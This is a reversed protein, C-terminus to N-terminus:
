SMEISTPHLKKNKVEAFIWIIFPLIVQFPFAYFKYTKFVWEMMEMINSYLIISLAIMLLAIPTVIERYDDIGFISAVGKSAALLCMSIKTFGAFLFVVSVLLEIRQLFDGLHILSVAIYSPFFTSSIFHPGMVLVNRVVVILVIMGGILLSSLYVKRISKKERFVYGVMMFIVTEAFPFSFVSFSGSMVGELNKHLVPRLNNFDALSMSLLIVAFITILLIPLVFEAWRGLVEIGAKVGWICLLCLLTVPVFAPTEPMAVVSIFESFNRIVLAGLHFAYWALFVSFIKGFIQGFIIGLIQFLDKEPFLYLVRSYVLIVPVAYLLGLLVAIWADQKAEGGTGLVLTSGMIFLVMVCIGQKVSLVEKGM